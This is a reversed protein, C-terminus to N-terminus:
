IYIKEILKNVINSFIIGGEKKGFDYIYPRGIDSCKSIDPDLPLEGLIELGYLEKLKESANGDFVKIRNKCNPCEFYSMNEIIGLIKINFMKCFKVSKSVDIMSIDQPTSVIIAGDINGIINFLSIIEDGTGPPSDIVLLDLEPWYIDSFFKKLLGVKIPGRWILPDDTNKLFFGMSLAYLNELVKYPKSRGDENKEELNVCENGIMKPISPGHMDIDFIATKFGKIAFGYSINTAITSKGVGGKCSLVIIKNKIRSLNEKILFDKYEEKDSM